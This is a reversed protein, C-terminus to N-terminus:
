SSLGICLCLLCYGFFFFFILFLGLEFFIKGIYSSFNWFLKSNFQIKLFVYSVEIVIGFNNWHRIELNLFGHTNFRLECEYIFDGSCFILLTLSFWKVVLDTYDSPPNWSGYDGASTTSIQLGWSPRCQQKWRPIWMVVGPIWLLM